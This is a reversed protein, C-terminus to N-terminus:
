KPNYHVNYVWSGKKKNHGIHYVKDAIEVLDKDHTVFLIQLRLGKCIEKVMLGAKRRLNGLWRFPEDMAIFLRKKPRELTILVVRLAFGIVDLISGGLDDKPIYEIGDEMIVPRCEINNRKEEFLLKFEFNRDSFVIQIAKTVLAEVKKSFDGQINALINLLLERAKTHDEVGNNLEDIKDAKEEALNILTNRETKLEDIKSRLKSLTSNNEGM